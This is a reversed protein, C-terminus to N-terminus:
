CTIQCSDGRAFLLCHQVANSSSSWTQLGLRAFEDPFGGGALLEWETSCIVGGPVHDQWGAIVSVPQLQEQRCCHM